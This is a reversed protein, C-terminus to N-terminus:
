WGNRVGIMVTLLLLIIVSVWISLWLVYITERWSAYHVPAMLIDHIHSTPLIADVQVPTGPLGEAEERHRCHSRWATEVPDQALDEASLEPLNLRHRIEQQYSQYSSLTALTANVQVSKSSPVVAEWRAAMTFQGSDLRDQLDQRLLDRPADLSELEVELGPIDSGLFPLFASAGGDSLLIAAPVQSDRFIVSAVSSPAGGDPQGAFGSLRSKWAVCPISYLPSLVEGELPRLTGVLEVRGQSASRLKQTATDARIAHAKIQFFPMVVFIMLMLALVVLVPWYLWAAWEVLAFIAWAIFGFLVPSLLVGMAEDHPRQKQFREWDMERAAGDM